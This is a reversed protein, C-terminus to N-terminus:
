EEGKAPDGELPVNETTSSVTASRGQGAHNYNVSNVVTWQTKPTFYHRKKGDDDATLVCVGSRKKGEGLFCLRESNLVSIGGSDQDRTEPNEADSM